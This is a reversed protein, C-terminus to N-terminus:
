MYMADRVAMGPLHTGVLVLVKIQTPDCRSLYQRVFDLCEDIYFLDLSNKWKGIDVDVERTMIESFIM